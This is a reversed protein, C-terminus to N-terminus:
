STTTPSDQPRPQGTGIGGTRLPGTRVASFVELASLRGKPSVDAIQKTALLPLLYLTAQPHSRAAPSSLPSGPETAKTVQPQIQGEQTPLFHSFSRHSTLRFKEQGPLMHTLPCESRSTQLRSLLSDGINVGHTLSGLQPASFANRNQSQRWDFCESERSTLWPQSSKSNPM